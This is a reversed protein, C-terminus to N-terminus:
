LDQATEAPVATSFYGTRVQQVVAARMRFAQLVNEQQGGARLESGHQPQHHQYNGIGWNAFM